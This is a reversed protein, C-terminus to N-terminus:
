HIGLTATRCNAKVRFTQTFRVFMKLTLTFKFVPTLQAKKIKNKCEPYPMCINNEVKKQRTLRM